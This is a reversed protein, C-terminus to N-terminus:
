NMGLLIKRVGPIRALCFAAVVSVVYVAVCKVECLLLHDAGSFVFYEFATMVLMHIYFVGISVNSLYTIVSSHAYTRNQFFLFAGSAAMVVGPTLYSRYFYGQFNAGSFVYEGWALVGTLVCGCVFLCAAKTTKVQSGYKKLYYGLFFYGLYGECLVLDIHGSLRLAPVFNGFTPQVVSFLLWIGLMYRYVERSICRVLSVLIPLLLYIALLTYMFWFQYYAPESLLSTFAHISAPIKKLVIRALVYIVSWVVFPLAQKTLRKKLTRWPLEGETDLLLAGSIMLFCPVSILCFTSVGMAATWSSSKNAILSVNGHIVVVMFIAFVRLYDYGIIRSKKEM